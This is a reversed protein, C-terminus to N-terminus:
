EARLDNNNLASLIKKAPFYIWALGNLFVMLLIVSIFVWPVNGAGSLMLQLIMPLSSVLGLLIGSLLIFAHEALILRLVFQQRFGLAAYLALESNRRSINRLLVIGLGVTGIIIGLGGLLMFVSLYTNEVANFSALRGATPTATLGYDRFLFELRKAITDQMRIDGEVLIIRSGAVSPFFLRLLSDSVLINGQFISNNLGGVLKIKLTKGAEDMYILTDGVSKRLGWTIVSQDAFGPIMDPALPHALSKWPHSKNVPATSSVVTFAGLENFQGAPVGLMAPQSVQNLNLCSANDGEVRPLQFYRANKLAEEDQLGFIEAGNPTNLDYMVPITTEAWLLFGGTGSSRFTDQGYLTKRNAGTIIITFTGISLLAVAAVTRGRHLALNRFVLRTFGPVTPIAKRTRGPLFLNLIAWGAPLMLGGAVLVLSSNAQKGSFLTMAIILVASGATISATIITLARNMKWKGPLPLGTDGGTLVSLPKRLNRWLIYFLTLMSTVLGSLAGTLLTTPYIKIVLLSTNVAENWITNLGLILLYNYLIGALAGLISGAAAVILAEVSLVELILGQRFGIAALIGTERTRATAHMSFLMGSLLLASVLIFFGLSLFLEGFDTSNDAALMGEAYVPRFSFGYGAPSIRSMFSRKLGPLDTESADFRFATYNGFRNGWMRHGADLSVFAKPTGRFDKWYQEDKDRIKKLNIPAGTQWDRCNGADTMGPFDPMLWRGAVTGAVPVVATVVFRSSDERLSRLPGMLFYRMTVSDGAGVHLDNALWDNLIIEKDGTQSKLFSSSTATVFSYPTSHNGASISNALYTLIPQCGPFASLVAKATADDFFIRGTTVQYTTNAVGPLKEFRIGADAPTWCTKLASDFATKTLGRSEDGAALMVNAYGKMKLLSALQELSMFINYPASQNNSLSFRGMSEDDAIACIKLRISVSPQNEAVFPADSPATGLNRLRILLEGGPALKLKEAVNRSIIVEDASPASLPSNWLRTFRNDIGTIRVQNIRLNMDSNIAIGDTVLLPATETKLRLSISDSLEQRFLREHPQMAFRVKGLRIDTLRSLSFRVSDGVILAGTIVAASVMIGAMVALWSKRYYWLNKYILRIRNMSM